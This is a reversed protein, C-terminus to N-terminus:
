GSGADEDDESTGKGGPAAAEDDLLGPAESDGLKAELDSRADTIQDGVRESQEGLHDAVQELEDAKQEHEEM